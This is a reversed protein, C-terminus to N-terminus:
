TQQCRVRCAPPSSVRPWRFLQLLQCAGGVTLLRELAHFDHLVAMEHSGERGDTWMPKILLPPQLGAQELLALAQAVSAGEPINVQNPAQVCVSAPEAPQGTGQSGASEPRQLPCAHTSPELLRPSTGHMVPCRVMILIGDGTLPSLMTSRNQVTRISSMSDIIPVEPHQQAYDLLNSEWAAAAPM